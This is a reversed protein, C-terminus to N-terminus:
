NLGCKIKIFGLTAKSAADFFVESLITEEDGAAAEIVTGVLSLGEVGVDLSSVQLSRKEILYLTWKPMKMTIIIKASDINQKHKIRFTVTNGNIRIRDSDYSHTYKYKAM